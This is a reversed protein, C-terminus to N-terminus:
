QLNAPPDYCGLYWELRWHVEDNITPFIHVPSFLTFFREFIITLFVLAYLGSRPYIISFFLLFGAALVYLPWVFGFIFNTLIFISVFVIGTIALILEEEERKKPKNRYM